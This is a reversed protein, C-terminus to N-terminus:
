SALFLSSQIKWKFTLVCTPQKVVNQSFDNKCFLKRTIKTKFHKISLGFICM